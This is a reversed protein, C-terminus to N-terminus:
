NTAHPTKTTSHILAGALLACLTCFTTGAHAVEPTASAAIVAGTLSALLAIAALARAKKREWELVARGVAREPDEGLMIALAAIKTAPMPRIGAQWQWLRQRSCHLRRALEAHTRCLEAAKDIMRQTSQM